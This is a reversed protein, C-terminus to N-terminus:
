SSFSIPVVFYNYILRGSRTATLNWVQEDGYVHETRRFLVEFPSGSFAITNGTVNMMPGLEVKDEPRSFQSFRLVDNVDQGPTQCLQLMLYNGPGYPFTDFRGYVVHFKTSFVKRLFIEKSSTPNSLGTVDVTSPHIEPENVFNTFDPHVDSLTNYLDASTVANSYTEYGSM